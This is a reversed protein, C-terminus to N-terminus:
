PNTKTSGDGGGVVVSLLVEYKVSRVKVNGFLVYCWAFNVINVDNIDSIKRPSWGLTDLKTSNWVTSDKISKLRRSIGM